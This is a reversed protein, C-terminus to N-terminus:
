PWIYLIKVPAWNWLVSVMVLFGVLFWAIIFLWMIKNYATTQTGEKWKNARHHEMGLVEEIEVCRRYKQNKLHRFEGQCDMVFRALRYGLFCLFIKSIGGWLDTTPNKLIIGMLALSGGWMISSVTWVLRDHHEASSQAAQYEALLVEQRCHNKDNIKADQDM